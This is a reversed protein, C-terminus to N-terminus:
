ALSLLIWMFDSSWFELLSVFVEMVDRNNWSAEVLSSTTHVYQIDELKKSVDWHANQMGCTWIFIVVFITVELECAAFM